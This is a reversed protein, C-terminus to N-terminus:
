GIWLSRIRGFTGDGLVRVLWSNVPGLLPSGKPVLYAKREETFPRDPHVAVLGPHRSSQYIAELADTIMVDAQGAAIQDFITTNDPWITIDANPFHERAFQENTGGPNEIVRVGPTNIQDISALRDADAAAVVPVKGSDLYPVTFEGVRERAATVTIGGMAIDCRGSGVDNALTPWTTPVFMVHRGLDAALATATDIDLGSYQGTVPDRYTLPLYDGTTCVRLPAPGGAWAPAVLLGGLVAVTSLVGGISPLLNM